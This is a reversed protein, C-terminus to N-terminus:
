SVGRLRGLPTSKQQRWRPFLAANAKVTEHPPPVVGVALEKKADCLNRVVCSGDLMSCGSTELASPRKAPPM